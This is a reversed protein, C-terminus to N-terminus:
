LFSNKSFFVREWGLHPGLHPAVNDSALSPATPPLLAAGGPDAATQRQAGKGGFGGKGMLSSALNLFISM